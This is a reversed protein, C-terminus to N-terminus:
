LRGIVMREPQWVVQGIISCQGSRVSVTPFRPNFSYLYWGDSKKILCKILLEGNWNVAFCENNKPTKRSTDVLVKEGDFYMPEMSMGGVGMMMLDAPASGLRDIVYQPVHFLGHDVDPDPEVAFGTVGAQLKLRVARIPITAGEGGIRIGEGGPPAPTPAVIFGDDDAAPSQGAGAPARDLYGPGM